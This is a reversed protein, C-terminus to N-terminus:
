RAPASVPAGATDDFLNLLADLGCHQLADTTRERVVPKAHYAVSVGAIGGGIIVFDWASM